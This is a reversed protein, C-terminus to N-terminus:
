NDFETLFHNLIIYFTFIKNVIILLTIIFLLLIISSVVWNKNKSLYRPLIFYLIGYTLGMYIMTMLTTNMLIRFFSIVFGYKEIQPLPGRLNWAPVWMTPILYTTLWYICWVIWFLLHRRVRISRRNSFVLNYLNM